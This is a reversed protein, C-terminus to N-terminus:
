SMSEQYYSRIVFMLAIHIGKKKTIPCFSIMRNITKHVLVKRSLMSMSKGSKNYISNYTHCM